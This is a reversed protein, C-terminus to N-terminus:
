RNRSSGSTWNPAEGNANGIDEGRFGVVSAEWNADDSDSGKGGSKSSRKVQVTVRHVGPFDILAVTQKWHWTSGAFDSDGESSGDAVKQLSMRETSLQNLGVWEAFSKERLYSVSDAASSLTSLLAGMGLAVIALAVLVEILTFGRSSHM